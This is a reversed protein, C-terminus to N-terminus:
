PGSRDTRDRSFTAPFPSKRPRRAWSPSPRRTSDRGTGPGGRGRRGQSGLRRVGPHRGRPRHIRHHDRSRSRGAPGPCPSPIQPGGPGPALGGDRVAQVREVLERYGIVAEAGQPVAVTGRYFPTGSWRRSSRDPRPEPYRIGRPGGSGAKRPTGCEPCNVSSLFTGELIEALAQRSPRGPGRVRPLDAEFVAECPCTVSRLVVRRRISEQSRPAELPGFLVDPGRHHNLRIHGAGGGHGGGPIPVRDQAEPAQATYGGRRVPPDPRRGAAPIPMLNMIFLGISLLSLFNFLQSLGDAWGERLAAAPLRDRGHLHDARPRIPRQYVKVNGRFLAALGQLTGSVTGLTDKWGRALADAPGEAQVRFAVARFTLGLDSEGRRELQASVDM